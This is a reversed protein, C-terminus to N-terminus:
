GCNSGNYANEDVNENILSSSVIIIIIICQLDSKQANPSIRSSITPLIAGFFDGM